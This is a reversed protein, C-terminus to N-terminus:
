SLAAAEVRAEKDLVVWTPDAFMATPSDSALLIAQELDDM